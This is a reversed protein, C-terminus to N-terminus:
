QGIQQTASRPGKSRGSAAPDESLSRNHERFPLALDGFHDMRAVLRRAVKFINIVHFFYRKKFLISLTKIHFLYNIM